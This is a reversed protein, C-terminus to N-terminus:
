DVVILGQNTLGSNVVILLARIPAKEPLGSVAGNISVNMGNELPSDALSTMSGQYLVNTEPTVTVNYTRGDPSTLTFGAASLNSVAGYFGPSALVDPAPPALPAGSELEIPKPPGIYEDLWDFEQQQGAPLNAQGTSGPGTISGAPNSGCGFALFAVALLGLFLLYRM